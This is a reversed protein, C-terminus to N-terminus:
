ASYPAAKVEVPLVFAVVAVAAACAHEFTGVAICVVVAVAVVAAVSMEFSDTQGAEVATQAAASAQSKDLLSQDSWAGIEVAVAAVSSADCLEVSVDFPQHVVLSDMGTCAQGAAPWGSAGAFTAAPATEVLGRGSLENGGAWGRGLVVVWEM